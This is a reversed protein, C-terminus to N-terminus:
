SFIFFSITPMSFYVFFLPNLYSKLAYELCVPFLLLFAAGPAPVGKFFRDDDMGIVSFRALRLALCTIYGVIFVWYIPSHARNFYQVYMIFAPVIGFNVFDALTDLTGGFKSSVQLYRAVRGDLGDLFAAAFICLVAHYVDHMFLFRIAHVGLALAAVTILSPVFGLNWDKVNKLSYM